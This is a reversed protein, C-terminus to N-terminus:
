QIYLLLYCIIFLIKGLANSFYTPPRGFNIKPSNILFFLQLHGIFTISFKMTPTDTKTSIELKRWKNCMTQDLTHQQTNNQKITRQINQLDKKSKRATNNQLLM